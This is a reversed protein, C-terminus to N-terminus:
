VTGNTNETLFKVYFQREENTLRYLLQSLLEHEHLRCLDVDQIVPACPASCELNGGVVFKHRCADPLDCREGNLDIRDCHLTRREM